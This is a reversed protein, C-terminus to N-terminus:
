PGMTGEPFQPRRGTTFVIDREFGEVPGGEYDAPSEHELLGDAGPSRIYFHQDRGVGLRRYDIPWGWGDERPFARVYVPTVLLALEDMSRADPYSGHDVAYAEVATQLTRISGLTELQRRWQTSAFTSRLGIALLSAVVILIFGLFSELGIPSDPDADPDSRRWLRAGAVVLPVGGALLVLVGPGPLDPRLVFALVPLGVGCAGSTVALTAVLSTPMTRVRRKVALALLGIGGGGAWGLVGPLTRWHTGPRRLPAGLLLALAALALGAGLSLALVAGAAVPLRRDAAM